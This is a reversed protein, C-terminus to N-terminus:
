GDTAVVGGFEDIITIQTILPGIDPTAQEVVPYFTEFEVLFEWVSNEVGLFERGRNAYQLAKCGPPEAGLLLLGIVDLVAWAGHQDQLNRLHCRIEWRSTVQQVIITSGEPEAMRDGRWMLTLVGHMGTTGQGARPTDQKAYENSRNPLGRVLLGVDRLPALRDVIFQEIDSFRSM